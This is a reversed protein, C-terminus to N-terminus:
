LFAPSIIIYGPQIFLLQMLLKEAAGCIYFGM